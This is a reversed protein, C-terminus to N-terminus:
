NNKLVGWLAGDNEGDFKFVVIGRLKYQKALNIKDKIALSDSIWILMKKQPGTDGTKTEADYSASLEGASNRSLTTNHESVLKIAAPYNLAKIRKYSFGGYLNPTLEYLYGYTAVGLEIKKAPIDLIATEIVKTVWAPDAVPAYYNTGKKVSNLQIDIAGQDYTMIRVVDCTQGIVTFDNSYEISELLKEDVVTVKDEIPTRAEITCILQKNRKVTRAKLIKLFRSFGERTEASKGEYDIDVGSFRDDSLIKQSIENLHRIRKKPDNLVEEMIAKDGWLITPIVPKNKKNAEVILVSWPAQKMKASDLIMGNKDVHYAFPSVVSLSDIHEVVDAVGATKRWFPIWGSFQITQAIVFSPFTTIFLFVVWICHKKFSNTYGFIDM